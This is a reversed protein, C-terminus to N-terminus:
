KLLGTEKGSYWVPNQKELRLGFNLDQDSKPKENEVRIRKVIPQSHVLEPKQNKLRYVYWMKTQINSSAAPEEWAVWEIFYETGLKRLSGSVWEVKEGTLPLDALERNVSDSVSLKQKWLRVAYRDLDLNCNKLQLASRDCVKDPSQKTLKKQLKSHAYFPAALGLLFALALVQSLITKSSEQM